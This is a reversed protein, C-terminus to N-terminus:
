VATLSSQAKVDELAAKECDQQLPLRMRMHRGKLAAARLLRTLLKRDGEKLGVLVHRSSTVMLILVGLICTVNLLAVVVFWVLFPLCSGAVLM